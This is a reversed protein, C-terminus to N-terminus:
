LGHAEKAKEVTQVVCHEDCCTVCLEGDTSVTHQCGCNMDIWSGDGEHTRIGTRHVVEDVGDTCSM